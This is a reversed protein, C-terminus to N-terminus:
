PCQPEGFQEQAWPTSRAATPQWSALFVAGLRQWAEPAAKWISRISDSGAPFGFPELDGFFDFGTEFTEAWAAIEAEVSARRKPVRRKVPM